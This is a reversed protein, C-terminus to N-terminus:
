RYGVRQWLFGEQSTTSFQISRRYMWKWGWCNEGNGSISFHTEIDDANPVVNGEADIIEVAVYSLDNRDAKIKKRDATLRIAVPKGVTKLTTSCVEKGNSFAKATLVGPQYPVDFM